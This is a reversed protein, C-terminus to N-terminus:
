RKLGLFHKYARILIRLLEEVGHGGVRCAKISIVGKSRRKPVMFIIHMCISSCTDSSDADMNLRDAMGVEDNTEAAGGHVVCEVM